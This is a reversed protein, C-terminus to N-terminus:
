KLKFRLKIKEFLFVLYTWKYGLKRNLIEKTKELGLEQVMQEYLPKPIQENM